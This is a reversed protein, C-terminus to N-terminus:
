ARGGSLPSAAQIGLPVPRTMQYLFIRRGDKNEQRCTIEAGAERLEAVCSNVACVDARRSIELTSHEGGDALLEHVRQLRESTQLQAAHMM